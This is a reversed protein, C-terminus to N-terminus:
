LMTHELLKGHMAENWESRMQIYRLYDEMKGLKSSAMMAACIHTEYSHLIQLGAAEITKMWKVSEAFVAAHDSTPTYYNLPGMSKIIRQHLGDSEPDTCRRCSCEFGYPKLERQRAATSAGTDCYAIFIQEGTKIERIACMSSSFSALDFKTVANPVCSHNVRSLKDFVASYSVGSGDDKGLSTAFANTRLVGHIPGSGDETHSNALAMLAARNEPIMRKIMFELVKEYEAMMALRQQEASMGVFISTQMPPAQPKVVLPREAFILDNMKMDSTAFFGLGMTPTTELRCRTTPPIPVQSPFNPTDLIVHKLKPGLFICETWNDPCEALTATLTKSPITVFIPANDSIDNIRMEDQEVYPIEPNQEELFATKMNGSHVKTQVVQSSAETLGPQACHDMWRAAKKTNLFGHKM